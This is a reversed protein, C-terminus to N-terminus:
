LADRHAQEALVLAELEIAEQFGLVIEGAGVEGALRELVKLDSGFIKVGLDTRVGTSLM